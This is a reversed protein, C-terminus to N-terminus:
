EGLAPPNEQDVYGQSIEIINGEPDAVWVTRWGQIFSDFGMPGLTVRADEGMEAIKADVDPVTFAIHRWGAYEYGDKTPAPEPRTGKAQFLEMYINGSRIFVIKDNGLPVLRARKFGFHKTYFREIADMDNCNLSVHLFVVDSM